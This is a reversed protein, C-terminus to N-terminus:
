DVKVIDKIHYRGCPKGTMDGLLYVKDSVCQLVINKVFKPALKSTFGKGADSLVFNRRWVIQGESLVCSKRRLNYRSANRQFATLLHSSVRDYLAELNEFSETYHSSPTQPDPSEVETEHLSAHPYPHFGHMLYFPSYETAASVTNNLVSCIKPLHSCWGRQDDQVSLSLATVISANYREVVNNQPHYYANYFLDKIGHSEAFARFEKSVFQKGNDLILTRPVSYPLFIHNEILRIITKSNPHRLPFAWVFKTFVDVVSLIHMHRQRSLPFPGILDLSLTQLPKTVRKPTTMLGLPPQRNPKYAKCVDCHSLFQNISRSMGRWYYTRSLFEFTKRPGVHCLSVHTRQILPTVHDSPVVIKWCRDEGSLPDHKSKSYRYLHNDRFVFGPVSSPDSTASKKLNNYWSDLSAEFPEVLSLNDLEIRSLGDALNNERGRKYILKFDYQSLRCGWRALRGSPSEMSSLYKLSGHDSYVTFSTGDLYPRFHEVSALIALLERETVSYSREQASLKRSFYAIVHETGDPMAQFLYSGISVASADCALSFPVSYDPTRLVPSSTMVRKLACFSREAEDTWCFDKSKYKSSTLDCLPAAIRSFDKIFRRYYSCMGLFGRVQKQNTPRPYSVMVSIKDPDTRIGESDIIHGLYKLSSKCFESKSLKITLNAECLRNFVIDLTRLHSEFDSSCILIDDLYCYVQDQVDSFLNDVLRQMAMGSNKAGMPCVTYQFLGRGPVFFATKPRSEPALPMQWYGHSLDLATLYKIEKLDDFIRIINPIRYADAKTVENLRRPDLVFRATGDSKPVLFCNNLWPSRSPEVVGLAIMNDLESVMQQRRAHSIPYTRQKVPPHDGTDIVHSVLPTRGLGKDEFSIQKFKSQIAAIRSRQSLTLHDYSVLCKPSPQLVSVTVPDKLNEGRMSIGPFLKPALASDRLFNAGLIISDELSPVVQFTVSLTRDELSIPLTM